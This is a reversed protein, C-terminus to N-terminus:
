LLTSIKKLDPSIGLNINTRVPQSYLLLVPAWRSNLSTIHCHIQSFFVLAFQYGGILSGLQYFRSIPDLVAFEHLLGPITVGSQGPALIFKEVNLYGGGSDHHDRLYDFNIRFSLM